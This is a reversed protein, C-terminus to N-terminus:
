RLMLKAPDGAQQCVSSKSKSTEMVTHSLEKYYIEKYVYNRVLHTGECGCM